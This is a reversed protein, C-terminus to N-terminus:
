YQVPSRPRTVLLQSTGLSSRQRFVNDPFEDLDLDPPSVQSQRESTNLDVNSTSTKSPSLDAVTKHHNLLAAKDDTYRDDPDDDNLDETSNEWCGDKSKVTFSVELPVESDVSMDLAKTPTQVSESQDQGPHLRGSSTSSSTTSLSDATLTLGRCVELRSKSTMVSDDGCLKAESDSVGTGYEM